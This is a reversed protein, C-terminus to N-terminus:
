LTKCTVLTKVIIVNLMGISHVQFIELPSLFKTGVSMFKMALVIVIIAFSMQMKLLLLLIDVKMVLLPGVFLDANQLEIAMLTVNIVIGMSRIYM